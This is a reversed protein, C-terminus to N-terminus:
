TKVSHASSEVSLSGGFAVLASTAFAIRPCTSARASSTPVQARAPLYRAAKLEGPPPLGPRDLGPRAERARPSVAGQPRPGQRGQAHHAHVRAPLLLDPVGRSAAPDREPARPLRDLAQKVEDGFMHDFKEPSIELPDRWGGEHIMRNYLLFDDMGEEGPMMVERLRAPKRTNLFM